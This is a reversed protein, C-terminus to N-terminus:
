ICCVDGVELNDHFAFVELSDGVALLLSHCSWRLTVGATPPIAPGLPRSGGGGRAKGEEAAAAASPPRHTTKFWSVVDWSGVVGPNELVALTGSAWLVALAGRHDGWAVAVM